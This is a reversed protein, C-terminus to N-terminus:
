PVPPKTRGEGWAARERPIPPNRARPHLRRQGTSSIKQDTHHSIFQLVFLKWTQAGAMLAVGTHTHTRTHSVVM